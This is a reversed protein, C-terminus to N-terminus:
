LCNAAAQDEPQRKQQYEHDSARSRLRRHLAAAIERDEAVAGATVVRRVARRERTSLREGRHEAPNIRGVNRRIQLGTDSPPRRVIEVSRQVVAQPRVAGMEIRRKRIGIEGMHAAGVAVRQEGIELRLLRHPIARRGGLHDERETDTGRYPKPVLEKHIGRGQWLAAVRLPVPAIEEDVARAMAGLAVRGFVQQEAIAVRAGEGALRHVVPEGGIEGAALGVTQAPPGRGLDRVVQLGANARVGRSDARHLIDDRMGRPQHRIGVTGGDGSIEFRQRRPLCLCCLQRRRRLHRGAFGHEDLM